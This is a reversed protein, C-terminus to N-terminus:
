EITQSSVPWPRPVFIVFIVFVVFSHTNKTIKTFKTIKTGAATPRRVLPVDSTTGNM